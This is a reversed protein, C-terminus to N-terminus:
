KLIINVQIRGGTRIDTKWNYRIEQDLWFIDLCIKLADVTDASAVLDPLSKWVSIVLYITFNFKCKDFQLL